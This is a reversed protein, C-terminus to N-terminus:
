AGDCNFSRNILAHGCVKTQTRLTAVAEIASAGSTLSSILARIVAPLDEEEVVHLAIYIYYFFVSLYTLQYFM